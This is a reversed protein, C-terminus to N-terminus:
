PMEWLFSKWEVLLRGSGDLLEIKWALPQIDESPWDAGTLGLYLWGRLDEGSLDWEFVEAEKRDSIFYAMRAKVVGANSAEELKAIFYQGAPQDPQSAIVTRFGQGTLAAGFYQGIPRIEGDEYYRSYASTIAMGPLQVLPLLLFTLLYTFRQMFRVMEWEGRTTLAPSPSYGTAPVALYNGPVPKGIM